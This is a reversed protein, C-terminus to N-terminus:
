IQDETSYMSQISTIGQVANRGSLQSVLERNQQIAQQLRAPEFVQGSFEQRLRSNLVAPLNAAALSSELLSACLQLHQPATNESVPAAITSTASEENPNMPTEEEEPTVLQNMARLFAGGRAPELVLDVSNVCVIETVRRGDALFLLDASFGLNPHPQNPDTMTAGLDSLLAAAPGCPRLNLRIGQREADWAPEHCVGALDRVSHAQRSHDIFCEAGQWLPVSAQLCVEDFQWGNGSGSSIALIEFGTGSASFSARSVVRAQLANAPLDPRCEITPTLANM